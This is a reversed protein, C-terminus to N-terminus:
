YYMSILNSLHCESMINYYYFLLITLLQLVNVKLLTGQVLELRLSIFLM